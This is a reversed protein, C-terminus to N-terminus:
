GNKRAARREAMRADLYAHAEDPSYTRGEAFDAKSQEILALERPTLARPLDSAPSLDADLIGAITQVTEDSASALRKTIVAITQTRTMGWDLLDSVHFGGM